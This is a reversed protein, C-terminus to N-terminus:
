CFPSVYWIGYKEETKEEVHDPTYWGMLRITAWWGESKEDSVMVVHEPRIGLRAELADQIGTVGAVYDEITPFCEDADVDRERCYVAFDGRRAHITIYQSLHTRCHSCNHLVYRRFTRMKQLASCAGSINM